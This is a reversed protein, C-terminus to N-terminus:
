QSLHNSFSIKKESRDLIWKVKLLCRLVHKKGKSFLIQIDQIIKHSLSWNRYLPYILSRRICSVFTDEITTFYDFWSLSSSLMTITWGSESTEDGQTTRHDYCYAFLVDIIGCFIEAENQIIYDKNKLDRLQQHEKEDFEFSKVQQQPLSSNGESIEEVSQILPKKEVQQLSSSSTSYWWPVFKIVEQIEEDCIFDAMYQEPDFRMEEDLMRAVKRDQPSIIEPDKLEITESLDEKFNKFVGTYQRNFGYYQTVNMEKEEQEINQDIQFDVEDIDDNDDMDDEILIENIDEKENQNNTNNNNNTNNENNETKMEQILPQQVNRKKLLTTIM